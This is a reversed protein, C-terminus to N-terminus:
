MTTTKTQQAIEEPMTATFRGTLIADLEDEIWLRNNLPIDLFDLVAGREPNRAKYTAVDLQAGISDFLQKGLELLRARLADTTQDQDPEALITRASAIAQEVGVQPAQELAAVARKEISIARILRLRTYHDYYARLLCEQFRWNSLLKDDAEAELSKWLAFNKEVATNVALSGTFADEMLFLGERVREGIDWGFFFRSYDLM